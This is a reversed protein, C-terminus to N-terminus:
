QKLADNSLLEKWLTFSDDGSPGNFNLEALDLAFLLVSFEDVFFALM